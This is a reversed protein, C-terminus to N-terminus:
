RLSTTAVVCLLLYVPLPNADDHSQFSKGLNFGDYFIPEVICLDFVNVSHSWCNSYDNFVHGDLDVVNTRHSIRNVVQFLFHSLMHTPHIGLEGSTLKEDGENVIRFM